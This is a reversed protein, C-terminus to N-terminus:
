RQWNNQRQFSNEQFYSNMMGRMPGRQFLRNNIGVIDIFWGSVLVALIFGLIILWPEKKYSFDYQKILLIGISLGIISFFITWWPFNSLMQYFRYQGMPGHTRLSFRVLSILFVSIVVSSILGLFTLISGLIFYIKPKMKVQGTQIQAMVNETINKLEKQM